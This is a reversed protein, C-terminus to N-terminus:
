TFKFDVKREQVCPLNVLYFSDYGGPKRTSIKGKKDFLAMIAPLHKRHFRTINQAWSLELWSVKYIGSASINVIYVSNVM